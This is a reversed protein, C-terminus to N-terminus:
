RPPYRFHAVIPWRFLADEERALGANHIVLPRGDPTTRESVIGCHDLGNEFVWFVIDGPKYDDYDGSVQVETGHRRFFAILNPIRRHDINPDPASLGWNQPYRNFNAKMDKHVLEQLDYGANRLARIVVDTCAGVDSPVDGMPFAIQRYSADYRVGKEVEYRAGEVIAKALDDAFERVHVEHDPAAQLSAPSQASERGAQERVWLVSVTVMVLTLSLLAFYRRM